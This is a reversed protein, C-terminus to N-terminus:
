WTTVNVVKMTGLEGSRAPAPIESGCLFTQANVILSTTEPIVYNKKM